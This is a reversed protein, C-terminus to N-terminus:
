FVGAVRELPGLSSDFLGDVPRTECKRWTTKLVSGFKREDTESRAPRTLAESTLMVFAEAVTKSFLLLKNDEKKKEKRFLHLSRYSFGCKFTEMHDFPPLDTQLLAM